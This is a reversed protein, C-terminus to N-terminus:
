GKISNSGRTGELANRSILLRDLSESEIVTLAAWGEKLTSTDHSCSGNYAGEILIPKNNILIPKLKFMNLTEIHRNLVTFTVSKTGIDATMDETPTYSVDVKGKIDQEKM